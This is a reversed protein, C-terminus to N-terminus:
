GPGRENPVSVLTLVPPAAPEAGPAGAGAADIADPPPDPDHRARRAAATGGLLSLAGLALLAATGFRPQPATAGSPQEASERPVSVRIMGADLAAAARSIAPAPRTGECGAVIRAPESTGIGIVQVTGARPAEARECRWVVEATLTDTRVELGPSGARLRGVLGVWAPQASLAATPAHGPGGAAVVDGPADGLEVLPVGLSAHVGLARLGSLEVLLPPRRRGLLTRVEPGSSAAIAVLRDGDWLLGGIDLEPWPGHVLTAGVLLDALDAEELADLTAPGTGTSGVEGAATGNTIGERSDTPAAVVRVESASRPWVRYGRLPQAGTTEQGLVGVAEVWAGASFASADAGLVAPQYVRVPGSGDDIEFSVTGSAIRRAGAVVAGRVRVLRAELGEGADGTRVTAAEPEPAIGLDRAPATVRITEMGALTSRTGQVEVRRGQPMAGVEDGIRLLIAGTGDQIVVSVPDVIGSSMTVVGRVTVRTGKVAERAAAITVVGNSPESPDSPEASGSPSAGPSTPEPAAVGAVDAPDRPQLRYGASGSGSSDRQGVVGVVDVRAGTSWSTTDIGTATAVLVRVPGSGDDVDYAPGASLSTPAGAIVGAVRVLRGEVDELVSGTARETPPPEAGPGIVEVNAGSARITRQAFRDDVTGTVRLVAGREFTGASMLVAIGGTLDAVYGGGEAFASATLAVAEVTVTTGDAAARAQAITMAPQSTPNATPSSSPTPPLPTPTATPTSSATSTATPSPPSPDPVPASGINQPDPLLRVVFDTANDDTDRTSGASGGPLREISSGAAPAPAPAGELWTSAATGWGVADVATTAGQIRIAVSGGTAAMGSAYTADAIAAYIGLENAILVHRGPELEAAGADWAARRGITLGSASVYVLELGELPLSSGTPNYIEIFEDSASAGGTVIESIVLHGPISDGRARQSGVPVLLSGSIAALLLLPLLVNRRASSPVARSM